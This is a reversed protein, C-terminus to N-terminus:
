PASINRSSKKPNAPVLGGKWVAQYYQIITKKLSLAPILFVM